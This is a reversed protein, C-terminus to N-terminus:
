RSLYRGGERRAVRLQWLTLFPTVVLEMALAGLMTPSPVGQSLLSLLRGIGGIVVISGLLIFSVRKREIGPISAAYALGIGLLLGSLYRFHSDLDRADGSAGGIMAPGLLLGAGGGLIPALCCVAVAAQLLRKSRQKGLNRM